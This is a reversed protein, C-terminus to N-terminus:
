FLYIIVVGLGIAEKQLMKCKRISTKISQIKKSRCCLDWVWPTGCVVFIDTTITQPIKTTFLLEHTCNPYITEYHNKAGIWIIKDGINHWEPVLYTIKM